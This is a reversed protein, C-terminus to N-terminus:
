IYVSSCPHVPHFPYQKGQVYRAPFLSPFIYAGRNPTTPPEKICASEHGPTPCHSVCYAVRPGHEYRLSNEEVDVSQTVRKCSLSVKERTRRSQRFFRGSLSLPMPFYPSACKWPLAYEYYRIYVIHYWVLAYLLFWISMILLLPSPCLLLVPCPWCSSSEAPFPEALLRTHGRSCFANKVHRQFCVYILIISAIRQRTCGKKSHIWGM